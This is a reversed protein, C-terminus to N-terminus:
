DLSRIRRHTIPSDGSPEQCGELRLVGQSDLEESGRPMGSSALKVELYYYVCTKGLRPRREMM